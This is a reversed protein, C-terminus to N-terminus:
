ILSVTVFTSLEFYKDNDWQDFHLDLFQKWHFLSAHRILSATSNSSSFIRECTELDENGFGSQYLPHNELQCARNHAFGHFANVVVRLNHAKAKASISSSAVTKKSSCGIDHGIAQNKGCTELVQSIAAL